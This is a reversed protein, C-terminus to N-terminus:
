IIKLSGESSFRRLNNDPNGVQSTGGAPPNLVGLTKLLFPSLPGLGLQEAYIYDFNHQSVQM